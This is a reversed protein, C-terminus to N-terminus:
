DAVKIQRKEDDLASQASKQSSAADKRSASLESLHQKVQKNSAVSDSKTDASQSSQTSPTDSGGILLYLAMAFVLLVGIGGVVIWLLGKSQKRSSAVM